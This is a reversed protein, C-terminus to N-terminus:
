WALIDAWEREVTDALLVVKRLAHLLTSPDFGMDKKEQASLEADVYDFLHEFADRILKRKSSLGYELWLLGQTGAESAVEAVDIPLPPTALGAYVYDMSIQHATFLGIGPFKRLEDRLDLYFIKDRIVLWNTFQSRQAMEWHKEVAQSIQEKNARSTQRQGFYFDPDHESAFKRWDGLSQFTRGDTRSFESNFTVTRFIIVNWFALATRRGSGYLAGGPAYLHRVTPVFRQFPSYKGPDERIKRILFAAQSSAAIAEETINTDEGASEPTAVDTSLSPTLVRLM